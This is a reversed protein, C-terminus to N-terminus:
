ITDAFCKPNISYTDENVSAHIFYPEAFTFDQIISFCIQNFM